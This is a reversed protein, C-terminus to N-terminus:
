TTPLRQWLELFRSLADRRAAIQGAEQRLRTEGSATMRYVRVPQGGDVPAWNSRLAGEDELARLLRYVRGTDVLWDPPQLARLREILSGGHDPRQAILLLLFAALHRGTQYKRGGVDARPM